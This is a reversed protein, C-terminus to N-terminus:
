PTGETRPPASATLIAELAIRKLAVIQERALGDGVVSQQSLTTTVRRFIELAREAVEARQRLDRITANCLGVATEREERAEAVQRELALERALIYDAFPRWENAELIIAEFGARLSAALEDRVSLARPNTM